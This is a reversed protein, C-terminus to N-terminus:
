TASVRRAIRSPWGWLRISSSMGQRKWFDDLRAAYPIPLASVILAVAEHSIPVRHVRRQKTYAAQKTWIALDLNFQDFTATGPRARAPGRDAHLASSGPPASIRTMPWRTQWGGLRRSRCSGSARLKRAAQPFRMAPNDARMRWLVALNFMKRLVEGVRNARVPTPKAPKLPKRRKGKPQSKAPRARGEAIKTLLKDM